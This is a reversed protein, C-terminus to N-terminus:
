SVFRAAKQRESLSVCLPVGRGLRKATGLWVLSFSNEQLSLEM